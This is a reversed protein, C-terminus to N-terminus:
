RKAWRERAAAAEETAHTIVQNRNEIELAAGFDPADANVQLARKTMQVALASNEAIATALEVARPLLRDDPVLESM